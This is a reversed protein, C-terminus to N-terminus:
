ALATGAHVLVTDGPAVPDILAIEVSSRAGAEDECLALSRSNDVAVVTMPVAEDSCTICHSFSNRGGTSALECTRDVDSAGTSALECTRDVDSASM